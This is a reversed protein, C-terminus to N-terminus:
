RLTTGGAPQEAMQVRQAYKQPDVRFAAQTDPSSFLYIRSRYSVGYQRQGGVRKGGDIALVPDDGSLGPAFRDPNALFSRQEDPGACLYTRGRHRVGWKARGEIWQGKEVLTVACYGELGLPLPAGPEGGPTGTSPMEAAAPPAEAPKPTKGLLSGFPKQVTAWFGGSKKGTAADTADPEPRPAARPGVAEAAADDGAMDPLPPQPPEPQTSAPPPPPLWPAGSAAPAPPAVAASPSPQPDIASVAEAATGTARPAAVPVVAGAAPEAPWAPPAPQLSPATPDAAAQPAAPPTPAPGPPTAPAGPVPGPPTAAGAVPGPLPAAPQVPPRALPGACAVAADQAARGAAAVFAASSEPCDFRALLRDQPDVVCASPVHQVEYRSPTVKDADIDVRVPEFCATLLAVAEDTGLFTRDHAVSAESWTAVFLILVPRRSVQSAAKAQALDAHWPVAASAARPGALLGVAAVLGLTVLRSPFRRPPVHLSPRM